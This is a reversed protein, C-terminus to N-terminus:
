AITVNTSRIVNKREESEKGRRVLSNMLNWFALLFLSHLSFQLNKGEGIICGIIFNNKIM